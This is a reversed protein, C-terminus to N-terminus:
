TIFDTLALNQPELVARSAPDSFYIHGDRRVVVDNPSNLRKGNWESAIVAIHGDKDLRVVRRGDREASYVRGKADMSNGNAANSHNRYVEVRNAGSSKIIRSSYIDSFLLFGEKSWIPGEVFGFDGAVKQVGSTSGALRPAPGDAQLEIRWKWAEGAALTVWAKGLNLSNQIGFWPEPSFYGVKPGGFINFRVLPEATNSSAQQTIRLSVGQPDVLRVYPQSRYGALPM